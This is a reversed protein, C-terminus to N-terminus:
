VLATTTPRTRQGGPGTPSSALVALAGWGSGSAAAPAPRAGQAPGARRPGPRARALERAWRGVSVAVHWRCDSHGMLLRVVRRHDWLQCGRHDWSRPLFGSLGTGHEHCAVIETASPVDMSAHLLGSPLPTDRDGSASAKNVQAPTLGKAAKATSRKVSGCEPLRASM